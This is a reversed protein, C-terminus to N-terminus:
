LCGSRSGQGATAEARIDGAAVHLAGDEGRYEHVEGAENPEIKGGAGIKLRVRQGKTFVTGEDVILVRLMVGRQFDDPFKPVRFLPPALGFHEQEGFSPPVLALLNAKLGFRCGACFRQM